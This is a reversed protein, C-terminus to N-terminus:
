AGDGGRPDHQIMYDSFLGSALDTNGQNLIETYIPLIMAKNQEELAAQDSAQRAPAAMLTVPAAAALLAGVVAVWRLLRTYPGLNFLKRAHGNVRGLASLTM